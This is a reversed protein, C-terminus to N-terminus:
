FKFLNQANQTTILAVADVTTNLLEAIKSAILPVYSSENRKGRHPTPTLFPADTELLLYNMGVNAVVEPLTSKKYTVPGGIGLYFGFDLVEKAQAYDGSFCHFVGTLGKGKYIAIVDMIEKHSERSHIVLPLSNKLAWECHIELSECQQKFFTKDWYLDIGTEGIGYFKHKPIENELFDLQVKYNEKVDTPHLAIMPFCNQPFQASLELVLPLSDIDINPLLLYNVGAEIARNVADTRDENFADLYLHTHTDVFIM